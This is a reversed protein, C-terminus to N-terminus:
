AIFLRREPGTQQLIGLHQGPQRWLIQHGLLLFPPLM